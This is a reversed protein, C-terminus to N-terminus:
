MRRMRRHTRCAPEDLAAELQSRFGAHWRLSGPIARSPSRGRATFVPQDAPHTCPLARGGIHLNRRCYVETNAQVIGHELAYALLLPKIASGPTGHRPDGVSALVVGTRWDLVVASAQTGTVAQALADHVQSARAPFCAAILAVVGVM